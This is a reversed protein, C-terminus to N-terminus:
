TGKHFNLVNAQLIITFEGKKAFYTENKQMITERKIQGDVYVKQVYFLGCSLIKARIAFTNKNEYQECICLSKRLGM